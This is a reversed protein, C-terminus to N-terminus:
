LDPTGAPIGLTGLTGALTDLRTGLHTRVPGSDPNGAAPTHMLGLDAPNSVLGWRVNRLCQGLVVALRCVFSMRM